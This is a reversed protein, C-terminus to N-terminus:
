LRGEWSVIKNCYGEIRMREYQSIFQAVATLYYHFNYKFIKLRDFCGRYAYWYIHMVRCCFLSACINLCKHMSTSKLEDCITNFSIQSFILFSM